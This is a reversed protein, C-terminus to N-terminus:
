KNKVLDFIWLPCHTNLFTKRKKENNLELVNCLSVVSITNIKSQNHYCEINHVTPRFPWSVYCPADDKTQKHKLSFIPNILHAKETKGQFLLPRICGYHEMSYVCWLVLKTLITLNTLKKKLMKEIKTYLQKDFITVIDYAGLEYKVTVKCKHLDWGLNEQIYYFFLYLSSIPNWKTNATDKQTITMWIKLRFSQDYDELEKQLESTTKIEYKTPKKQINLGSILINKNNFTTTSNLTTPTILNNIKLDVFNDQTQSSTSNLIPISINYQDQTFPVTENKKEDSQKTTTTTSTTNIIPTPLNNILPKISSSKMVVAKASQKNNNKKITSKSRPITDFTIFNINSQDIQNIISKDFDVFIDEGTEDCFVFFRQNINISQNLLSAYDSIITQIENFNDFTTPINNAISDQDEQTSNTVFQCKFTKINFIINNIKEHKIFESPFKLTTPAINSTM